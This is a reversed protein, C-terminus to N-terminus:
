ENLEVALAAAISSTLLMTFILDSIIIFRWLSSKAPLFMVLFCYLSAVAEVVVFYKFSPIDSYKAEFSVSFFNAKERSTGMVIAASVTAGFALIRLVLSFIWKMKSM